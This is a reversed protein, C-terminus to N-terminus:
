LKEEIAINRTYIADNLAEGIMNEAYFDNKERDNETNGGILFTFVHGGYNADAPINAVAVFETEAPAETVTSDASAATTTAVSTEAPTQDGGCAVFTPLVILAALLLATWRKKM